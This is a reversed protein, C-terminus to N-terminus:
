RARSSARNNCWTSPGNNAVRSASSGARRSCRQTSAVVRCGHASKRLDWGSGIRSSSTTGSGSGGCRAAGVPIKVGSATPSMNASPPAKIPRARLGRLWCTSIAVSM